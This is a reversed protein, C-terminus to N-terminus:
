QCLCGSETRSICADVSLEVSLCGCETTSICDDVSLEVSVLRWWWVNSQISYFTHYYKREFVGHLVLLPTSTYSCEKKLKPAPHPHIKLDLGRRRWRRSLSVTGKTCSPLNSGHGTQVPTYFRAEGPNLWRVTWGSALRYLSQAIQIFYTHSSCTHIYTRWIEHKLM